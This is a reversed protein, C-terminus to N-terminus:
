FLIPFVDEKNRGLKRGKLDDIRVTAGFTDFNSQFEDIRSGWYILCCAMPAGKGEDRGEVLFRLRTDYLFCIADAEGFIYKKWHSTNPAVPILAVIESGYERYAEVCKALWNKISTGRYRDLGYPPNVYITTFNWSEDLGDMDPLRYETQAQVISYENSCPDLSIVGGFFKRISDVYKKPTCWSQSTTNVRRGATM